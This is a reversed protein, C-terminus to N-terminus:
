HETGDDYFATRWKGHTSCINEVETAKENPVAYSLNICVRDTM